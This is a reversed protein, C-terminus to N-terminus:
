HPGAVISFGLKLLEGHIRPTGWLPNENCMRHILDRLERDVKPRGGRYRSKWRWLARFGARHWGIVTEPRIITVAGAVGPFLRYLWVLLVRDSNSVKPRKPTKRRLVNLQHRLVVIEVKLREHSQFCSWIYGLLLNVLGVM